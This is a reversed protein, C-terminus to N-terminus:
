SLFSSKRNLGLNASMSVVVPDVGTIDWRPEIQAEYCAMLRSRGDILKHTEEELVLPVMLGNAKFDDVLLGFEEENPLRFFGAVEHVGEVEPYYTLIEEFIPLKM